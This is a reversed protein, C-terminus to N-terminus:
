KTHANWSNVHEIGISELNTKSHINGVHNATHAERVMQVVRGQRNVIYHASAPGHRFTNIASREDQAPGGTIHIIIYRITRATGPILFNAAPSWYAAQPYDINQLDVSQLGGSMTRGGTGSVRVTHYFRACLLVDFNEHSVGKM